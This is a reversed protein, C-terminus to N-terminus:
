FDKIEREHPEKRFYVYRGTQKIPSPYDLQIIETKLDYTEDFDAIVETTVCHADDFDDDSIIGDFYFYVVILKETLEYSVARLNSPINSLLARQLSLRLYVDIEFKNNM